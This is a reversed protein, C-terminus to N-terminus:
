IAHHKQTIYVTGQFLGVLEEAQNHIQITYQATRRGRHNETATAIFVDGVKGAKPYHMHLDLAVCIPGYSNSAFALASDALSFSVGGHLIGFGNVMDERVPMRVQCSGPALALIELGLWQSFADQDLMHGVIQKARDIAAETNM